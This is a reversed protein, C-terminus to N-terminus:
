FYFSEDRLYKSHLLPCIKYREDTTEQYVAHLVEFVNRIGIRDAWEFPGYPYNTGLKMATDIDEMTATGEQLTYCAENIIMCLIRPTVMGARDTVIRYQWGLAQMLAEAPEHDKGYLSLEAVNRDLFTPLCNIGILNCHVEKGCDHVMRALSKKVACAVVPTNDLEAYDALREPEEDLNLDFIVDAEALSKKDHLACLLSTIRVKEEPLHLRLEDLRKQEGVVVINM